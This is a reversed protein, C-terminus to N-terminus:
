LKRALVHWHAARSLQGAEPLWEDKHTIRLLDFGTMLREMQPRDIFHHPIGDEIGGVKVYTYDDLKRGKGWDDSLTSNFTVFCLGGSRLVRHVEQLCQAVGESTAHYVVNFALVADFCADPYPIRTIDSSVVEARLGESQLWRATQALSEPSIDSACVDFGQQALYVTHRGLGCGLDYVRRAAEKHLRSAFVMVDGDPELWRAREAGAVQAWPWGKSPVPDTM